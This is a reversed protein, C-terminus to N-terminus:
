ARFKSIIRSDNAMDVVKGNKLKVNGNVSRTNAKTYGDDYNLSVSRKFQPERISRISGNMGMVRDSVSEISRRISAPTGNEEELDGVTKSRKQRRKRLIKRLSTGAQNNTPLRPATFNIPYDEERTISNSDVGKEGNKKASYNPMSTIAIVDDFRSFDIEYLGNQKEYTFLPALRHGWLIEAPM